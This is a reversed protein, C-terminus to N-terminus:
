EHGQRMTQAAAPTTGASDRPSLGGQGQKQRDTRAGRTAEHGHKMEKQSQRWATQIRHFTEADGGHDPHHQRRLKRYAARAEDLGGEVGLVERWTGRRLWAALHGNLMLAHALMRPDVVPVPQQRVLRVLSHFNAPLAARVQDDMAEAYKLFTPGLCVRSGVQRAKRAFVTALYLEVVAPDDPRERVLEGLAALRGPGDTVSPALARLNRGPTEADRRIAERLDM